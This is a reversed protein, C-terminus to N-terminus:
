LFVLCSAEKKNWFDDSGDGLLEARQYPLLISDQEQVQTSMGRKGLILEDKLYHIYM